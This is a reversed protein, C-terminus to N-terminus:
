NILSRRYYYYCPLEYYQASYRIITVLPNISGEEIIYIRRISYINSWMNGLKSCPFAHNDYMYERDYRAIEYPSVTLYFTNRESREKKQEKGKGKKKLM